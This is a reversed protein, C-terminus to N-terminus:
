KSKAHKRKVIGITAFAAFGAVTATLTGLMSEPVVFFTAVAITALAVGNSYVTYYGGSAPTFSNVSGALQNLWPGAVVVDASDRVEINADSGAPAVSLLNIYVIEGPAYSSKATATIDSTQISASRATPAAAFAVNITMTLAIALALVAFINRSKM